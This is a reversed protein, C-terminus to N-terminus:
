VEWAHLLKFGAINNTSLTQKLEMANSAQKKKKKWRSKCWGVTPLLYLLTSTITFM